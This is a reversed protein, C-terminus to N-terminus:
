RTRSWVQDQGGDSWWGTLTNDDENYSLVVPSAITLLRSPNSLCLVAMSGSLEYGDVTGKGKCVCPYLPNGDADTGCASCGYDYYLFQATDGGSIELRQFSGDKVDISAWSGVFPIWGQDSEPAGVAVPVGLALVAGVVLFGVVTRKM